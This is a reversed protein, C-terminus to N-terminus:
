PRIEVSDGEILDNPPDIVIRDAPSIGSLVEVINNERKGTRIIRLAVRNNADVAYVLEMQGRILLAQLPITFTSQGAQPLLLHGFQGPRASSGSKLLVRMKHSRSSPDANPSLESIIGWQYSDLDGLAVKVSDGTAIGGIYKEAVAADFFVTESQEIVFLTKGPAAMDGVDTMREAVIGDFPSTISAYSLMAKALGLNADAVGKRAKVADFEQKTVAGTTVLTEYRSFELSVQEQVAEAQELQASLDRSDLVALMDGRSVPSGLGVLIKEVRAQVRSAIEARNRSAVSGPITMEGASMSVQAAVVRVQKLESPAREQSVEKDACGLLATALLVSLALSRIM